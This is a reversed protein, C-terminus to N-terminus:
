GLQFQKIMCKLHFFGFVLDLLRKIIFQLSFITFMAGDYFLLFYVDTPEVHLYSIWNAALWYSIWLQSFIVASQVITVNLQMCNVTGIM